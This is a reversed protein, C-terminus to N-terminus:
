VILFRCVYVKLENKPGSLTMLDLMLKNQFLTVKDCYLYIIKVGDYIYCIHLLCTVHLMYRRFLNLLTEINSFNM